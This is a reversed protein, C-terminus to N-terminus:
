LFWSFDRNQEGYDVSQLFVSKWSGFPGSGSYLVSQHAVRLNMIKSGFDESDSRIMSFERRKVCLTSQAAEFRTGFHAFFRSKTSKQPNREIGVRVFIVFFWSKAWRLWRKAFISIKLKRVTGLWQLSCKPSRRSIEHIQVWFWGSGSLLTSM